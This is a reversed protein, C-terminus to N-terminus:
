SVEGTIQFRSYGAGGGWDYTWTPPRSEDLDTQESKYFVQSQLLVYILLLVFVVIVYNEM